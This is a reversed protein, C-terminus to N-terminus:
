KGEASLEDDIQAFREEAGPHRRYWRQDRWSVFLFFLVEFAAVSLVIIVIKIFM